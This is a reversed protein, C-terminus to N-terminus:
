RKPSLRGQLNPRQRGFEDEIYMPAYEDRSRDYRDFQTRAEDQPFLAKSCGILNCAIVSLALVGGLRVAHRSAPSNSLTSRGTQDMSADM